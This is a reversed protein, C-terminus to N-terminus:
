IVRLEAKKIRLPVYRYPPTAPYGIMLSGYVAYNTTIQVIERCEPIMNLFRTLYGSWCTGVGHAQLVLEVTTLAIATDQAPNLADKNCIGLLLAANEGIVPNNNNHNYERLVEDLDQQQRCYQLIVRMLQAQVGGDRILLWQLPHENKASPAFMAIDIAKRILADPVPTKSFKRYSRRQYLFRELDEVAFNSLDQVKFTVASKGQYLIAGQPCIAACHMCDICYKKISEAVSKGTNLKLVSFPCVKICLGCGICNEENIEIM